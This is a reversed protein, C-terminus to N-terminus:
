FLDLQDRKPKAPTSSTATKARKGTRAAPVKSQLMLLAMCVGKTFGKHYADGCGDAKRKLLEIQEELRQLSAELDMVAGSDMSETKIVSVRSVRHAAPHFRLGIKGSGASGPLPDETCPPNPVLANVRDNIKISAECRHCIRSIDGGRTPSIHMLHSDGISTENWHFFFSGLEDLHISDPFFVRRGSFNAARVVPAAERLGGELVEAKIAALASGDFRCIIRRCGAPFDAHLLKEFGRGINAKGTSGRSSGTSLCRRRTYPTTNKIM